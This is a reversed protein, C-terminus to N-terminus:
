QVRLTGKMDPHITCIYPFTGKARAVYTWSKGEAIEGSDFHGKSTATHPFFDKNVWVIKDGVHVTLVAPKFQSSEIIVTHTTPAPLPAAAGQGTGASVLVFAAALIAVSASSSLRM